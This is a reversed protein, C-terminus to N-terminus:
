SPAIRHVVEPGAATCADTLGTSALPTDAALRLESPETEEGGMQTSARRGCRRKPASAREPVPTSRTSATWSFPVLVGRPRTLASPNRLQAVGGIIGSPSASAMGAPLERLILRRRLAM